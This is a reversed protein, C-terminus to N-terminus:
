LPPLLAIRRLVNALADCLHADMMAQMLLSNAEYVVTSRAKLLASTVNWFLSLDAATVCEEWM